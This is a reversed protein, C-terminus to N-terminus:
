ATNRRCQQCQGIVEAVVREAKFGAATCIRDIERDIEIDLADIRGCSRCLTIPGPAGPAEVYANLAEVRRVRAGLRDLVRYVQNPAMPAGLARAQRAIVYAGLPAQSACLISLVIADLIASSRKRESPDYEAGRTGGKSPGLGLDVPLPGASAGTSSM